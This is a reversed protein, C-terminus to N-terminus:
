QAALQMSFKQHELTRPGTEPESGHETRRHRVLIWINVTQALAVASPATMPGTLTSLNWFCSSPFVTDISARFIEHSIIASTLIYKLKLPQITEGFVSVMKRM